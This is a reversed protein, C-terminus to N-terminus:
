VGRIVKELYSRSVPSIRLYRHPRQTVRELLCAVVSLTLWQILFRMWSNSLWFAPALSVLFSVCYFNDMLRGLIGSGLKDRLRVILHWPGNEKALLHAVRWIALACFAFCLVFKGDIM